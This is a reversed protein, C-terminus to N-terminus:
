QAKVGAAKIVKAWREADKQLFAKFEEPTSGGDTIAGLEKLKQGTEPKALSARIAQNLKAVVPQPTGAPAVIGLGQTYEEFGPFGGQAM